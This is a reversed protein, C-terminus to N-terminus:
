QLSTYLEEVTKEIESSFSFISHLNIIQLALLVPSPLLVSSLLWKSLKSNHSIPIHVTLPDEKEEPVTSVSILTIMLKLPDNGQGREM